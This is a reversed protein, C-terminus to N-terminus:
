NFTGDDDDVCSPMAEEVSPRFLVLLAVEQAVRTPIARGRFPDHLQLQSPGRGVGARTVVRHVRRNAGFPRVCCALVLLPHALFHVVDPGLLVQEHHMSDGETLADCVHLIQAPIDLLHQVLPAHDAGERNRDLTALGRRAADDGEDFLLRRWIRNPSANRPSWSELPTTWHARSSSRCSCRLRSQPASPCTTRSGPTSTHHLAATVERTEIPIQM